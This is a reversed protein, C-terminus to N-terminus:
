RIVSAAAGHGTVRMKIYPKSTGAVELTADLESRWRSVMAREQERAADDVLIVCGTKFREKMIPVLGYRGGKTSGPPGDCIVFDFDHPMSEIPVEYWCFEGYDKLPKVSLALTTLAYRRTMRRVKKAWDSNHELAWYRQGRKKAIAGIVITSLGSGCELISGTSVLAQHICGALYENLASWGENGWGYILDILAPHEPNACAAPNKLFQRMARRFVLDRHLDRFSSRIPPPLVAKAIKRLQM